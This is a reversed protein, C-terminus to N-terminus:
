NGNYRAWIQYFAFFMAAFSCLVFSCILVTNWDVRGAEVPPPATVPKASFDTALNTPRRREPLWAAGGQGSREGPAAEVTLGEQENSYRKIM